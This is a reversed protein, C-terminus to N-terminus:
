PTRTTACAGEVCATRSRGDIGGCFDPCAHAKDICEARGVACSGTARDTGCACDADSKCATSCPGSGAPDAAGNACGMAVLFVFSLAARM